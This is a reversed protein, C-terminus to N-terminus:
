GRYKPNLIQPSPYPSRLAASRRLRHAHALPALECVVGHEARTGKYKPNLNLVLTPRTCRLLAASITRTRSRRLNAFFEAAKELSLRGKLEM